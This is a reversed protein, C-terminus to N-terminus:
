RELMIGMIGMGILIGLLFAHIMENTITIIM